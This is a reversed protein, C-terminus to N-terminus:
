VENLKRVIYNMLNNRHRDTRAPAERFSPYAVTARRPYVSVNRQVFWSQCRQNTLCKRTFKKVAEERRKCLLDINAKKRLKAASLEPGFINKLAQSQQKELLASQTATLSSHWVPSAYEVTPRILAAYTKVLKEQNLGKKRM